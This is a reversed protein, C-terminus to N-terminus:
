AVPLELAGLAPAGLQPARDASASLGPPVSEGEPAGSSTPRSPGQWRSPQHARYPSTRRGSVSGDGRVEAGRGDLLSLHALLDRDHGARRAHGGRFSRALGCAGPRRDRDAPARPHRVMPPPDEPGPDHQHDPRHDAVRV